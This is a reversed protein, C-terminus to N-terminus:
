RHDFNARLKQFAIQREIVACLGAIVEDPSEDTIEALDELASVLSWVDRKSAEVQVNVRM